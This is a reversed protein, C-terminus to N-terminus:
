ITIRGRSLNDSIEQLRNVREEMSPHTSFLRAFGDGIAPMIFFANMSESRQLEQKPARRAFSEIKRLASALQMPQGTLQAAGRDAAYERYRSLTAILIQSVVWVSIVVFYALLMASGGGERRRGFGGFLGMWFLFSMLTSAVVSFFSAYTM